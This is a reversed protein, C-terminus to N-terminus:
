IRDYVFIILMNHLKHLAIIFWNKYYKKVVQIDEVFLKKYSSGRNSEPHIRYNVVYDNLMKIKVKKTIRLWYDYDMCYKLNEDLLGVELMLDKRWFTSPQIIFNTIGLFFKQFPLNRLIAKYLIVFSQINKGFPDVILYNANICKDKPHSSFYKIIKYFVDNSYYFDDSGLFTVIDGSVKKFGKNVANSLGSDKESKWILRKDKYKKLIKITGDTSGGDIVICEFDCKKQNLVSDISQKIYKEQNFVPIIVSIKM